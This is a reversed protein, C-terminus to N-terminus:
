LSAIRIAKSLRGAIDKQGSKSLMKKEMDPNSFVGLIAMVSPCKAERLVRYTSHGVSGCDEDDFQLAMVRAIHESREAYPMSEDYIFLQLERDSDMTEVHLSVNLDAQETLKIREELTLYSDDSRTLVVKIHTGEFEEELLKAVSLVVDKEKHGDKNNTGPDKGGHGADIVVVFEKSPDPMAGESKLTFASFLVMSMVVTLSWKFTKITRTSEKKTIMHFRSKLSVFSFNSALALQPRHNQSVGVVKYLYDKINSHYRIAKQDAEFEHNLSISKRYLYVLPNFWYAIMLLEALLIDVSHQQRVHVLEHALLHEDQLQEESCVFVKNWFSFPQSLRENIFIHQQDTANSQLRIQRIKLLGNIFRVLMLGVGVVYIMVLFLAWSFTWSSDSVAIESEEFTPVIFTATELIELNGLSQENEFSLFAVPISILPVILSIILAGLLFFRNVVFSKEQKLLVHYCLLGFAMFLSSILLYRMM